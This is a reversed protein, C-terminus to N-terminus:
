KLIKFGNRTHFEFKKNLARLISDEACLNQELFNRIEINSEHTLRSLLDEDIALNKTYLNAIEMPTLSYYDMIENLSEENKLECYKQVLINGKSDLNLFELHDEMESLLEEVSSRNLGYLGGKQSITLYKKKHKRVNNTHYLGFFFILSGFPYTFLNSYDM